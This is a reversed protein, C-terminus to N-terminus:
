SWPEARLAARAATHVRDRIVAHLARLGDRGTRVHVVETGAPPAALAARLTAVDDARRYGVGYGRCLAAVDAGHPTGFTREFVARQATGRGAREGHELLSFIGGGDDDLLVVQVDPRRQGPEALLANADHLFAIDGVLVRVRRHHGSLAVGVATSLTGDIGALGRNALVRAHDAASRAPTAVGVEFPRAALDLDRIPNSAAAVLVEGPALAAAVERAVLPGLPDGASPTDLVADLAVRAAEGARLWAAAWAGPDRRYWGKEADALDAPAVGGVVPGVVPGVVRRVPRGPDPWDGSPSVLVLEVDARALLAAV